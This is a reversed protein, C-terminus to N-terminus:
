PVEFFHSSAQESAGTPNLLPKSM